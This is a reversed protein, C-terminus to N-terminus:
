HIAPDKLLGAILQFRSSVLNICTGGALRKRESALTDIVTYSFKESKLIKLTEAFFNSRRKPNGGNNSCYFMNLGGMLRGTKCKPKNEIQRLDMMLEIPCDVDMFPHFDMGDSFTRLWKNLCFEENEVMITQEYGEAMVYIAIGHNVNYAPEYLDYDEEMKALLTDAISM